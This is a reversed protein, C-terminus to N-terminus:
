FQIQSDDIGFHEVVEPLREPNIQYLSAKRGKHGDGNTGVQVVHRGDLLDNLALGIDLSGRAFDQGRCAALLKTKPQPTMVGNSFLVEIIKRCRRFGAGCHQKDILQRIPALYFDMLRTAWDIDSKKIEGQAIVFALRGVLEVCRSEVQPDEASRGYKQPHNMIDAIKDAYQYYSELAEATAPFPLFLSELEQAKDLNIRWVGKKSEEYSEARLRRFQQSQAILERFEYSSEFDFREPVRQADRISRVPKDDVFILMRSLLGDEFDRVDFGDDFGRPVGFGCYSVSPFSLPKVTNTGGIVSGPSIAVEDWSSFLRLLVEGVNKLWSQAKPNKLGEFFHHAEDQLIVRVSESRSIEDWLGLESRIRDTYIEVDGARQLVRKLAARPFNKGRGTKAFCFFFLNGGAGSPLGQVRYCSGKLAGITSAATAFAFAPYPQLSAQSIERVMEGILGPCNLFHEDPIAKLISSTTQQKREELL